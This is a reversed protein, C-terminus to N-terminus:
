LLAKMLNCAYGWNRAGHTYTHSPRRVCEDGLQAREPVPLSGTGESNSRARFRCMLVVLPRVALLACATWWQITDQTGGASLEHDMGLGVQANSSMRM